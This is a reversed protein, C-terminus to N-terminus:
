PRVFKEFMGCRATEISLTLGGEFRYGIFGAANGSSQYLRLRDAGLIEYKDFERLFSYANGGTISLNGGSGFRVTVGTGPSFQQQNFGGGTGYLTEVLTWDGQVSESKDKSCSVLSVILLLFLVKENPSSSPDLYFSAKSNLLRRLM